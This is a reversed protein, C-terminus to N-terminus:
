SWRKQWSRMDKAKTKMNEYNKTTMDNLLQLEKITNGNAM